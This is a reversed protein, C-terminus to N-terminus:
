LHPALYGLLNGLGNWLGHLAICPWVSGTYARLYGYLFVTIRYPQFSFELCLTELDLRILHVLAFLLASVLM